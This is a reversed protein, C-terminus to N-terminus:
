KLSIDIPEGKLISEVVMEVKERNEPILEAIKEMLAPVVFADSNWEAKLGERFSENFNPNTLLDKYIWEIKQEYIKAVRHGKTGEGCERQIDMFFEKAIKLHHIAQIFNTGAM